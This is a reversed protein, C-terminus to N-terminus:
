RGLRRKRRERFAQDDQGYRDDVGLGRKEAEIRQEREKRQSRRDAQWPEGALSRLATGQVANAPWVISIPKGASDVAHHEVEVTGTEIRTVVGFWLTSVNVDRHEHPRAAMTTWFRTVEAEIAEDAEVEAEATLMNRMPKIILCVQGPEVDIGHSYGSLSRTAVWLGRLDLAKATIEDNDDVLSNVLLGPDYPDYDENM